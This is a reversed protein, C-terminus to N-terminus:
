EISITYNGTGRYSYVRVYCTGPVHCSVRDPSTTGVASCVQSDGSFVEFDIDTGPDHNIVFTPRVGEQGGLVYWDVDGQHGIQGSFSRANIRTAQSRDDNPERDDAGSTGTNSVTAIRGQRSIVIRYPGYGSSSYVRLYGTGPVRCSIVDPSSVGIASGVLNDGSYVQMDLDRGPEHNLSFTPNVGEQGTLLYWDVDGASSLVGAIEMSSTRSAQEKSDNPEVDQGSTGASTSVQMRSEKSIDITYEGEGRHSYIKLYGTSPIRCTVSDTSQTGLATGVKQDGSYVEMDFDKGEAHRLTITPNTGEQGGLRYWDVDGQNAISGRFSMSRRILTAQSKDNNPERDDGFSSAVKPANAEITFDGSGQYNWIQLYCNGQIPGCQVSEENGTGGAYGIQISDDYLKFDFDRGPEHRMVISRNEVRNKPLKYWMTTRTPSTFSGRLPMSKVTIASDKTDHGTTQSVFTQGAQDPQSPTGPEAVQAKSGHLDRMALNGWQRITDLKLDSLPQYSDGAIVSIGDQKKRHLLKISIEYERGQRIIEGFALYETQTVRMIEKMCAENNCDLSEKMNQSAMLQEVVAHSMVEYKNTRTIANSFINSIRAAESAPVGKGAVLDKVFITPREDATLMRGGAAFILSFLIFAIIVRIRM